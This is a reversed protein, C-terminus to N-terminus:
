KNKKLAEATVAIMPEYKNKLKDYDERWENALREWEKAQGQLEKVAALHEKLPMWHFQRDTCIGTEAEYETVEFVDEGDDSILMRDGIRPWAAAKPTNM